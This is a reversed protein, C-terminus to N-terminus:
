TWLLVALAGVVYAPLAVYLFGNREVPDNRNKVYRSTSTALLAVIWAASLIPTLLALLLAPVAVILTYAILGAM